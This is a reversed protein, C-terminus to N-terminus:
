ISAVVDGPLSEGTARIRDGSLEVREWEIAVGTAALVREAAEAVEPGIGDGAILTILDGM